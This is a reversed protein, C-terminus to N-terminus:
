ASARRHLIFTAPGDNVLEVLMHEGFCGEEVQLGTQALGERVRQILAKAEEPPAAGDFSPRRGKECAAALTFQSVLLVAGGVETVSRNMKGSEDDFVRLESIKRTMWSAEEPGDGKEVALLVLLGRGIEGHTRGLAEVRAHLVRQLVAIM